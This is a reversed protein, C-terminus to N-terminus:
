PLRRSAVSTKILEGQRKVLEMTRSSEDGAHNWTYGEPRKWNPDGLRERMAKDAATFDADTGKVLPIQVSAAAASGRYYFEAPFGGLGISGNKFTVRKGNLGAARNEPTDYYEFVGNGRTGEVWKGRSESPLSELGSPDAGSPVDGGEYRYLNPDGGGLELPDNQLWRGLTPSYM